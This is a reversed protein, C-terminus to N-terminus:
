STWLIYQEKIIWKNKENSLLILYGQGVERQSIGYYLLAKTYNNDFGVRSLEIIGSSNPYREYFSDWNNSINTTRFIDNREEDSILIVRQSISYKNELKYRNSNKTKSDNVLDIDLKKYTDEFFEIARISTENTTLQSIVVKDISQHSFKQLIVASYIKYENDPVPQMNDIYGLGTPEKSPTELEALKEPSVQQQVCGSIFTSGIVLLLLIGILKKRINQGFKEM